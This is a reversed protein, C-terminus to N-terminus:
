LLSEIREGDVMIFGFDCASDRAYTKDTDESVYKRYQATPFAVQPKGNRNCLITLFDNQSDVAKVGDSELLPNKRAYNAHIRAIIAEREAKPM